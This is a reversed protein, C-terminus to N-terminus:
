QKGNKNANILKNMIDNAKLLMEDKTINSIVGSFRVQECEDLMGLLESRLAPEVNDETLLDEIKQKSIEGVGINYHEAIYM